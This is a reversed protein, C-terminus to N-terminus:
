TSCLITAISGIIKRFEIEQRTKTTSFLETKQSTPSSNQVISHIRDKLINCKTLRPSPWLVLFAAGHRILIWLSINSNQCAIRKLIMSDTIEYRTWLQYTNQRMTMSQITRTIDPQIFNILIRTINNLWGGKCQPSSTDTSKENVYFEESRVIVRPDVWGRVSILVLFIEQPYLRGTSLASLRGGGQAM